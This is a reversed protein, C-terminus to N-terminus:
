VNYINTKYSNKNKEFWKITEILGNKLSYEPVWDTYDQIKKNDCRLQEVESRSPRIRQNDEKIIVGKNMLSAILHVLDGMSIEENM